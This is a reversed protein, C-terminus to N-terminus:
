PQEAVVEPKVALDHEKQGARLQVLDDITAGECFGLRHIHKHLAEFRKSHSQVAGAVPLDEIVAYM